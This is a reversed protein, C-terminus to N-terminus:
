FRLRFVTPEGPKSTAAISGGHQRMIERALSLGIGSGDKKTTFFPVFLKDLAEEVIGRGNDMVQVVARSRIDIHADLKIEPEVIGDVAELANKFLNILVQEILDRDATLELQGPEIKTVVNIKGAATESRFLEVVVDFLEKVPFVSL